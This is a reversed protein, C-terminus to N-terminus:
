ILQVLSFQTERNPNEFFGSIRYKDFLGLTNDERRLAHSHTIDFNFAFVVAYVAIAVVAIFLVCRKM